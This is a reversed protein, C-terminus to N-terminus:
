RARPRVMYRGEPAPLFGHRAYLSHADRTGLLVRDLRTVSPHALVHAVLAKGVGRGRAEPFVFVDALWGFRAGDHVVRAFGLQREGEYVGFCLSGTLARLFAEYGLGEAWYSEDRLFAHVRALELRTLDSSFLLGDRAREYADRPAPLVSAPDAAGCLPRAAPATRAFLADLAAPSPEGPDVPFAARLAVPIVGTYAAGEGERPGEARVKVSAEDLPIALVLTAALEAASPEAAEASRGRGVREVLAVLAARKEAEETVERARGYVVASRYNMSHHMARAALVLGDLLTFCVCVDGPGLAAGLLANQRAGHLYLTDGMRAHMTPLVRPAGSVVVAVHCVLAEDVIAALALPDSVSREPHRAIRTRPTSASPTLRNDM